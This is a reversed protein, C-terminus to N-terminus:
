WCPMVDRIRRLLVIAREDDWNYLTRSLLYTDAVPVPDVFFEAPATLRHGAQAARALVDPADVVVHPLDVLIGQAEPAAALIEILLAGHHGGVDAITTRQELPVRGITLEPEGM